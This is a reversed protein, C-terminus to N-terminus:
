QRVEVADGFRLRGVCERAHNTIEVYHSLTAYGHRATESACACAIDSAHAFAEGLGSLEIGQDDISPEDDFLNFYFLPM